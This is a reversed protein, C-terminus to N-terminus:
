SGRNNDAVATVSLSNARVNTEDAIIKKYSADRLQTTIPKTFEGATQKLENNLLEEYVATAIDEASSDVILTNSDFRLVYTEGAYSVNIVWLDENVYYKATKIVAAAAQYENFASSGVTQLRNLSGSSLAKEEAM